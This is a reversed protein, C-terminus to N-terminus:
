RLLEAIIAIRQQENRLGVDDMRAVAWQIKQALVLNEQRKLADIFAHLADEVDKPINARHFLIDSMASRMALAFAGDYVLEAKSFRRGRFPCFNANFESQERDKVAQPGLQLRHRIHMQKEAVLKIDIYDSIAQLDYIHGSPGRVPITPFDQSISCLFEEADPTERIIYAKYAEYQEMQIAITKWKLYAPDASIEIYQMSAGISAGIAAGVVWGGQVALLTGVVAGGPGAVAGGVTGGIIGGGILGFAGGILMNDVSKNWIKSKIVAKTKADTGSLFTMRSVDVGQLLQADFTEIDARIPHKKVLEDITLPKRLQRVRLDSSLNATNM